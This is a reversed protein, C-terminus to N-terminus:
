NDDKDDGETMLAVPDRKLAKGGKQLLSLEYLIDEVKKLNTQVADVKKTYKGGAISNCEFLHYYVLSQTEAVKKVTELDRNAAKFVAVRGIEGTFDSLAGIYETHDILPASITTTGDASKKERTFPGSSPSLIQNDKVWAVFLAGEAWEELSATFSGFRLTPLEDIIPFVKEVAIKKADDLKKTADSLDGRHVSFIAQKSLKQIDRSIKIVEERRKDYADMRKRINDFGEKDIM